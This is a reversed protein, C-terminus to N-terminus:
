VNSVSLLESSSDEYMCRGILRFLVSNPLLSLRFILYLGVRDDDDDDRPTLPCVYPATFITVDM